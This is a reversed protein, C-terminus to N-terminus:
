VRLRARLERVVVSQNRHDTMYPVLLDPDFTPILESRPLELYHDGRLGFFRLSCEEYLWVERVGLLRWVDLKDLGGHTSIVEIAIDPADVPLRGDPWVVYCEDAEAGREVEPNRITWSGAGVVDVGTEDCWAEFLRALRKKWEEHNWGPSMLELVGRLYTMRPVSSEGRGALLAEYTEWSVNTVQVRQDQEPAPPLPRHSAAEMLDALGCSEM